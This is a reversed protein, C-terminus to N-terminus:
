RGGLGYELGREYGIRYAERIGRGISMDFGFAICSETTDSIIDSVEEKDDEPIEFKAKTM